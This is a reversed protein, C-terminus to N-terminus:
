KVEGNYISVKSEVWASSSYFISSYQNAQVKEGHYYFGIMFILWCPILQSLYIWLVARNTSTFFISEYIYSHVSPHETINCKHPVYEGYESHQDLM